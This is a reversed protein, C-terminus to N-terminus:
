LGWADDTASRRGLRCDEQKGTYDFLLRSSAGASLAGALTAMMAHNTLRHMQVCVTCTHPKGHGDYVQGFCQECASLQIDALPVAVAVLTCHCLLVALAKGAPLM